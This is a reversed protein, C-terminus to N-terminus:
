SFGIRCMFQGQCYRLANIKEEAEERLTKLQVLEASQEKKRDHQRRRGSPERSKQATHVAEVEPAKTEVSPENLVMYNSPVLGTIGNQEMLWWGDDYMELLLLSAGKAVSLEDDDGAEYSYVATATVPASM